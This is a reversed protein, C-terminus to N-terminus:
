ENWDDDKDYIKSLLDVLVWKMYVCVKKDGKAFVNKGDFSIEFGKEKAKTNAQAVLQQVFLRMDKPSYQSEIYEYLCNGEESMIISTESGQSDQEIRLVIESGDCRETETYELLYGLASRVVTDGLDKFINQVHYMTEARMKSDLEEQSLQTRGSNQFRGRSKEGKNFNSKVNASPSHSTPTLNSNTGKSNEGGMEPYRVTVKQTATKDSRGGFMAAYMASNKDKEGYVIIRGNNNGM